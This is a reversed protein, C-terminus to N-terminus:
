VMENMKRLRKAMVHMVQLAFTPTEQVMFLFRERDVTIVKCDTRAIASASRTSHDALAMEGLFGNEGITELHKGDFVIDVEGERVVYMSMDSCDEGQSFIVTGAPYEDFDTVNKFYNIAPM